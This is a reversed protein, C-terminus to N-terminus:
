HFNWFNESVTFALGIELRASGQRRQWVVQAQAQQGTDLRTVQLTEGTEVAHECEVMAGHRSLMHTQTHEEWLRGPKESRLRIPISAAKRPGRRLRQSVAGAWLLIDLLQARQLNDLDQASQALDAVQRVCESIFEAMSEDDADRFTREQLRHSCGELQEYCEATFHERCFPRNQLSAAAPRECGSTSCRETRM